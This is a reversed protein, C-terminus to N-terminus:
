SENFEVNRLNDDLVNVFELGFQKPVEVAFYAEDSFTGNIPSWGDENLNIRFDLLNVNTEQVAKEVPEDVPVKITTTKSLPCRHTSYKLEISDLEPLIQKSYKVFEEVNKFGWNLPFLEQHYYQEYQTKIENVEIVFGLELLHRIRMWVRRLIEKPSVILDAIWILYM